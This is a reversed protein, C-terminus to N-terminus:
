YLSKVFNSVPERWGKWPPSESFVENHLLITFDGQVSLTRQHLEHLHVIAENPGLSMYKQLSVDMAITPHLILDTQSNNLLDFWPYPIALGSRFGTRHYLCNSYEDKIGAELLNRYTVPYHVRLYHQRSSGIKQKLIGELNKKEEQIHALNKSSLYSPHVGIQYGKQKVDLILKRLGQHTHDFRSDFVHRRAILFFFTTLEPPCCAFIHEFSYNPDERTLGVKLREQWEQSKGKLMDRVLGGWFIFPSKNLYKWPNDIDLTIKVKPKRDPITFGSFHQKIIALLKKAYLHVLPFTLYGQKASPYEQEDYREYEDLYAHVYKEYDTGLYFIAALPDFNLDGENQPFLLPLDDPLISAFDNRIEEEELLGEPFINIVGPYTKKSYNICPFSESPLEQSGLVLEYPVNWIRDFLIHAVYRLRPGANEAKLYIKM